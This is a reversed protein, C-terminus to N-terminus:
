PPLASFLRSSCFAFSRTLILLLLAFCFLSGALSASGSLAIILL